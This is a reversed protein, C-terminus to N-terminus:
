EGRDQPWAAEAGIAPEDDEPPATHRVFLTAIVVGGAIGVLVVWLPVPINLAADM